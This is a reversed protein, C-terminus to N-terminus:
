RGLIFARPNREITRALSGFAATARKLERMANIAESNFASRDGYAAIVTDARAALLELREALEPLDQVAIAVEDAAIKASALADNLSGAADGDRLEDLLGTASKLTDSLNKPLQAADDTGLMSRLDQLIGQAEAGIAAFEVRAISEAASEIDDIMAPVDAVATKISEAAAAAEDVMGGINTMAGSQKLDAALVRMDAVTQRIEALTANGEDLLDQVKEPVGRAQPSAAIATVSDLMTTASTLLEEIPLNGIRTMVGQASATFDTINGPVTPIIPYLEADLAIEAPAANEIPVLEVILRTGLIGASAVRARLGDAVRDALFSLVEDKTADTALGLRAPTLAITIAQKVDRTPGIGTSEIHVAMDTVKGVTLGQFEVDAGKELGRVSGDVLMTLRVDYRNDAAFLSNRASAEDPNLRFVHGREVPEGGSTLTAFEVGGQLLSALSNVNFSVGQAGLSLSFGSTDWFVTSTTLRQDYPAEILADVLVSEDNDSLRINQMKGVQIGRFMVPAGDTLGEASDTSLVILTGRTQQTALPPRDLGTFVTTEQGSKSADWSGEIFVGSLVTDLRSIGQASVEPRVIWFEADSDIFEAIGKDVRIGIKVKTLDPTFEVSEVKGVTIERFKLSTEGPTIGTADTFEVEILKGRGNYASWAIGLTVILALIPVLWIPSPMKRRAPSSSVMDAPKPPTIDTM